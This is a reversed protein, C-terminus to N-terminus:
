RKNNLFYYLSMRKDEASLDDLETTEEAPDEILPLQCVKKEELAFSGRPKLINYIILCTTIWDV